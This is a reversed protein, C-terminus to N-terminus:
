GRKAGDNDQNLFRWVLAIGGLAGLFFFVILLVPGRGTVKDLGYGIATSVLTVVVMQVGLAM